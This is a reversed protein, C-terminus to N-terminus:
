ASWAQVAQIAGPLLPSLEGALMGAEGFQNRWMEGALGHLFAGCIAAPAGHLGQALLGVIVGALVDGTGATGLAPNAFPIVTVQGAPSAVVTYAGKLVVTCGWRHAAERAVELRQRQVSAIDIDLLTAMEGPHPTLVTDKPLNQWWEPRRALLNLGDADIILSPLKLRREGQPEAARFGIPRVRHTKGQVLALLFEETEAERGLGSGVLLANYSEVHEALVRLAEPTLAGMEDPLVLHTAELVCAAAIRHLREPVALTVLGAGVRYAAEAALCPAGVYNASGGVVLAKGFTGKHGHSPRPPLLAAVGAQTALACPLDRALTPDIGIDAIVLAGVRGAGPLTFQGRKPFAFTVTVDATLTAEDVQGSDADLGSPLDVAIVLPRKVAPPPPSWGISLLDQAEAPQHLQQAVARLIDPLRGRLPGTAGTGLLADIVIDCGSLATRLGRLDEDEEARLVPISLSQIRQLNPDDASARKWLYTTVPHGWLHLLRACVLGDGGNNGPGVLVLVRARPAGTRQQVVQAVAQGAREMMTTYTLGSANAAQEFRRMEEATVLKTMDM